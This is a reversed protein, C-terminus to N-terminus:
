VNPYEIKIHNYADILMNIQREDSIIQMTNINIRQGKKDLIYNEVVQIMYQIIQIHRM